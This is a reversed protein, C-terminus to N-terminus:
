KPSPSPKTDPTASREMRTPTGSSTSNEPPMTLTMGSVPPESRDQRGPSPRTDDVPASRKPPAAPPSTCCYRVSGARQAARRVGVAQGYRHAAARRDIFHDNDDKGLDLQVWNIKGNFRSGHATNDPTVTTGSEYGIDTTEASFVMPQTAGVRGSGVETGDYYLTVDGGKALVGGDYSFEMRVQHTGEPIPTTAETPNVVVVIASSVSDDSGNMAAISSARISKWPLAASRSILTVGSSCPHRGGRL